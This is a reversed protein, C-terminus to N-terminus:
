MAPPALESAMRSAGGEIDGEIQRNSRRGFVRMAIPITTAAGLSILSLGLARRRDPSFRSALLLGIGVGLAVRTSVAAGFTQPSIAITRM